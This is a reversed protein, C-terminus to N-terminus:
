PRAARRLGRELRELVPQDVPQDPAGGRGARGGEDGARRAGLDVEVAVLALDIRRQDRRREGDPPRTWDARVRPPRPRIGDRIAPAPAIQRSRIAARRARRPPDLSSGGARDRPARPPAPPPGRGTRRRRDQEIAMRHRRAGRTSPALRASRAEAVAVAGRDAGIQEVGRHPADRPARSGSAGAVRRIGAAIDDGAVAARAVADVGELDLDVARGIEVGVQARGPRAEVAGARSIAATASASSVRSSPASGHRHLADSHGCRPM